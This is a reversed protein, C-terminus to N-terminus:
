LLAGDRALAAVIQAVAVYADPPIARGSEGQAYLLRALTVDEILPIGHERAISRVRLAADDVARVLIEPVPVSPPAYRLAVAVHTPNVVVFSAERTRGVTGGVVARHARKRRARAQPDGDNEKADRKLEDFSMKLGRLWRRRALAYDAVAFVAGVALASGCARLAASAVLQAAAGPSGLATGGGVVDRALPVMALLAGSFALAARVIAVVAEGGAMRKIGAIPDLRKLDVRIAVVHLGGTQALAAASGACAAAAAPLLAGLAVVGLAAVGPVAGHGLAADGRSPHAAIERLAAVAGAAAFPVAFAVAFVAAGFAALSSIEGSRAVNGERKARARRAPTADFRKDDAGSM